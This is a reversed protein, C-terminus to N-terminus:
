GEREAITVAHPMPHHAPLVAESDAWTALGIVGTERWKARLVAPDLEAGALFTLFV